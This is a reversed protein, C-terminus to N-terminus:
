FTIHLLLHQYALPHEAHRYTLSKSGNKHTSDWHKLVFNGDILLDVNAGLLKLYVGIILETILQNSHPRICNILIYKKIKNKNGPKM